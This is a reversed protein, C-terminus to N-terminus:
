KQTSGAAFHDYVLRSIRAIALVADGHSKAGKTFVSIAYSTARASVIGCDHCVGERSGTKNALKAEAPLFLGLRSTDQQRGLIELMMADWEGGLAQGRAIRVLLGSIERATCVNDLGREIAAWDYMKRQLTTEAFGMRRMTSNVSEVGILDMVVNTATNDSVIIMLSLLDRLTLACGAHLYRTIGSGPVSDQEAVHYETDLSLTGEAAQRLAEVLMPVKIVSAASVLLGDAISIDGANAIDRVAVSVEGGCERAVGEIRGLLEDMQM